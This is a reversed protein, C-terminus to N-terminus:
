ADNGLGEFISVNTCDVTVGCCVLCRFVSHMSAGDKLSHSLNHLGSYCRYLTFLPVHGAAVDWEELLSVDQITYVCRFVSLSMRHLEGCRTSHFTGHLGGCRISHFTWHLGGCRFMSHFTVHPGGCHFLFHSVRHLGGCHFLFYSVRHLGESRLLPHSVRHLGESRFLLHSM